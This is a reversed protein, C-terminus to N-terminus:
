PQRLWIKVGGLFARGQMPVGIIEDYGTNSLNTMQVFPQVRGIEHTLSFDWVPYATQQFRQQVLVRTNLTTWRQPTYFWNFVANHVPYNFVYESQLGHLANQAGDLWTWSLDVQQHESARWTMSAETGKFDLGSINAAQWLDAPSARVYDIFNTQPSYFGTVFIGLSPRPYYDFGAEYNWASEPRLNPDGLTTPDSYYLDVYTPLRFGSGVSARFKIGPHMWFAAAVMPNFVDYGGSIFEQRAGVSLLAHRSPRLDLDVYGSGWNRAHQGLNNSHIHDGDFDLGYFLAKGTGPHEQRRLVAQWSGDIHNNAYLAPDDRVLIFNDTHRRYAFGAQTKDGLAQNISSFWGKTREWSPYYGYFNAAGFPSDSAALLIDSTGLPTTIWSESSANENRYDRDYIFGSSYDHHAALQEAWCRQVYNGVFTQQNEGFSGAGASVWLSTMPPRATTFDVVGGLADAGYLTSGAGHLVEISTMADLPVPMDLNNHATEADNARFGDILVLTQEFSTGRVSLDAPFGGAGRQNIQISSDTRLYDEVNNFAQPHEQTDLVVVSRASEGLTVPAADGLVTVTTRVPELKTVPQQQQATCASAGALCLLALGNGAGLKRRPFRCIASQRRQLPKQLFCNRIAM